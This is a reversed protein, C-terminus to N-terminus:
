QPIGQPLRVDGVGRFQPERLFAGSEPDNFDLFKKSLDRFHNRIPGRNATYFTRLYTFFTFDINIQNRAARAM